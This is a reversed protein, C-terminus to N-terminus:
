FNQRDLFAQWENPFNCNMFCEAEGDAVELSIMRGTAIAKEILNRLAYKGEAIQNEILPLLSRPYAAALPEHRGHVLPVCGQEDNSLSLIHRITKPTIGPMDVALIFVVPCSAAELVAAIGAIPGVDESADVVTKLGSIAVPSGQRTSLILESIGAQDLTDCQHRLLSVGNVTLQAKDTGMRRSHGGILLAGTFCEGVRETPLCDTTSDM